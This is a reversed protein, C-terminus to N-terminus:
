GKTRNGSLACLIAEYNRRSWEGDQYTEHSIMEDTPEIPLLAYGEPIRVDAQAAPENLLAAEIIEHLKITKEWADKHEQIPTNNISEKYRAIMRQNYEYAERREESLVTDVRKVPYKDANKRVSAWFDEMMKKTIEVPPGSTFDRGESLVPTETRTALDKRIYQTASKHYPEVDIEIERHPGNPASVIITAPMNDKSLHPGNCKWPTLCNPCMTNDESM